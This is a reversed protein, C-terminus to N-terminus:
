QTRFLNFFKNEIFYSFFKIDDLQNANITTLEGADIPNEFLENFYETNSFNDIRFWQHAVSNNPDYVMSDSLDLLNLVDIDIQDCIKVWQAESKIKAILTGM